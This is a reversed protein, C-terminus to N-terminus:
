DHTLSLAIVLYQSRLSRGNASPYSLYRDVITTQGYLLVTTVDCVQLAPRPEAPPQGSKMQAVPRTTTKDKGDKVEVADIDKTAPKKKKLKALISSEREPFAPMEELVTALVDTSAVAALQLYEIARQQLEVDANKLQNNHKLVQARM